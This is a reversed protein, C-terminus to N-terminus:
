EKRKQRAEKIEKKLQKHAERLHLPPMDTITEAGGTLGCKPCVSDQDTLPEGCSRCEAAAIANEREREEKIEEALRARAGKVDPGPLDTITEAGGTLGCNPCTETESPLPEGCDKCKAM